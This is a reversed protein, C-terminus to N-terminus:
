LIADRRADFLFTAVANSRANRIKETKKHSTETTSEAPQVYSEQPPPHQYQRTQYQQIVVAFLILTKCVEYADRRVSPGSIEVM